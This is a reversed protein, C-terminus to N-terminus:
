PLGGAAFTENRDPIRYVSIGLTATVAHSSEDSSTLQVSRVVIRSSPTDLWDLVKVVAPYTGTVHAVFPLEIVGELIQYRQPRFSDLSVGQGNARATVTRLVSSTVTDIPGSWVRPGIAKVSGAYQVKSKEVEGQLSKQTRVRAKVIGAVTPEPVFLRIALCGALILIAAVVM